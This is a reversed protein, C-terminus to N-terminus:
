GAEVIEDEGYALPNVPRKLLVVHPEVFGVAEYGMAGWENLVDERTRPETGEPAYQPKYAMVPLAIVLYRWQTASRTM